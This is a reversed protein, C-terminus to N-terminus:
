EDGQECEPKKGEKILKLELLQGEKLGLQKHGSPCTHYAGDRDIGALKHSKFPQGCNSCWNKLFWMRRFHSM